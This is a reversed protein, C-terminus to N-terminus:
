ETEALIPMSWDIKSTPQRSRGDARGWFFVTM